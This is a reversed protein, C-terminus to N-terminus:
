HGFTVSESYTGDGVFVTDGANANQAAHGITLWPQSQTGPNSDRGTKAVYFTAAQCVSAAMLLLIITRMVKNMLGGPNTESPRALSPKLIFSQRLSSRSREMPVKWCRGAAPM